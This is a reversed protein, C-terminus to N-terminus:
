RRDEVLVVVMSHDLALLMSQLVFVRTDSLPGWLYAIHEGVMVVLHPHLDPLRGVGKIVGGCMLRLVQLGGPEARGQFSLHGLLM